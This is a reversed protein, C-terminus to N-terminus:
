KVITDDTCKMEYLRAKADCQKILSGAGVPYLVLGPM